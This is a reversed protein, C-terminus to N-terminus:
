FGYLTLAHSIRHKIETNSFPFSDFFLAESADPRRNRIKDARFQAKEQDENLAHAIVAIMDIIFHAGPARAAKEGAEAASGYQGENVFSLARGALMAYVFPDLPSLALAKDFHTLSVGTNGSLMDTFAHAYYGHSYNPNLAIARDLWGLSTDLEGDLLYARGLTFNAFPDIPDLEISRESFRRADLLADAQGDDYKLFSSQFSTFSLGAYARSFGPDQETARRFLDAARANDQNTFRYMHQLGLHYNSWSDLNESVNLRANRAENLPIYVELSSVVRAVIEARVQHVGDHKEVIRDSWIIGGTRTDSLETTIALANDLIEVSGALVYRVGLAKGIEQVDVGAGRFQFSSGRAIVFLWGLRSLAQILDHPLADAIVSEPDLPGLFLFPLIAISPKTNPPRDKAQEEASPQQIASKVRARREANMDLDTVTVQAVFRFGKGHITRIISQATGDDGVAQRASKIRSSISADSVFRGDWVKEIIEDKSVVRDRNELLLELLGFVQPEVAVLSGREKLEFRGPDLTFGNFLYEM